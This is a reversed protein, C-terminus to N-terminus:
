PGPSSLSSTPRSPTRSDPDSNVAELSTVMEETSSCLVEDKDAIKIIANVVIWALVQSLMSNSAESALCVPRMIPTLGITVPVHCARSLCTVPVHCDHSLCTFPM